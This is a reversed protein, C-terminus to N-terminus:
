RESTCNKVYVITADQNGAIVEQLYKNVPDSIKLNPLALYSEIIMRVQDKFVNKLFNVLEEIVASNDIELAFHFPTKGNFIKDKLLTLIDDQSIVKIKLAYDLIDLYNQVVKIDSLLANHLPNYGATTKKLLLIKFHKAKAANTQLTVYNDHLLDSFANLIYNATERKEYNARDKSNIVYSLRIADHMHTHGNAGVCGIFSPDQKYAEKIKVQLEAASIDGFYCRFMATHIDKADQNEYRTGYETLSTQNRTM